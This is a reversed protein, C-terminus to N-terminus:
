RDSVGYFEKAKKIGDKISPYITNTALEKIAASIRAKEESSESFSSPATMPTREVWQIMQRKGLNKDQITVISLEGQQVVNTNYKPFHARIAEDINTSFAEHVADEFVQTKLISAEKSKLRLLM